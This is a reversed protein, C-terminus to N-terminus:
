EWHVEKRRNICHNTKTEAFTHQANQQTGYLTLTQPILQFAMLRVISVVTTALCMKCLSEAYLHPSDGAQKGQAREYVEQIAMEHVSSKPHNWLLKHRIKMMNEFKSKYVFLPQSVIMRVAAEPDGFWVSEPITFTFSDYNIKEFFPAVVDRWGDSMFVPICGSAIGDWVRSTQLDDGRVIFCFRHDVLEQAFARQSPADKSEITSNHAALFHITNMFFSRQRPAQQVYAPPKGRYYFMRPRALWSEFTGNWYVTSMVPLVFSRSWIHSFDLGFPYRARVWDWEAHQLLDHDSYMRAIRSPASSVRFRGHRFRMYRGTIVNSFVGGPIMMRIDHTYMQIWGPYAWVWPLIDIFHDRGRNRRFWTSNELVKVVRDLRQKHSGACSAFMSGELSFPIFFLNAKSPVRTVWSSNQLRRYMLATTCLYSDCKYCTDFNALEEYIYILFPPPIHELPSSSYSVLFGQLPLITSAYWLLLCPFVTVAGVRACTGKTILKM